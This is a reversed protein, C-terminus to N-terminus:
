GWLPDIHLSLGAPGHSIGAPTKLGHGAVCVIGELFPEEALLADAAREPCRPQTVEPSDRKTEM